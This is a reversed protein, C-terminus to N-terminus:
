IIVKKRKYKYKQILMGLITVLSKRSIKLAIFLNEIGDFLAKERKDLDM